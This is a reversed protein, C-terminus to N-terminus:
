KLLYSGLTENAIKIFGVEPVESDENTTENFYQLVQNHIAVLLNKNWKSRMGLFFNLYSLILMLGTRDNMQKVATEISMSAVSHISAMRDDNTLVLPRAPLKPVYKSTNCPLDQTKLNAILPAETVSKDQQTLVTQCNKSMMLKLANIVFMKAQPYPCTLLTDLIFRFATTEPVSYLVRSILEFTATRIEEDIQDLNKLLLMQLLCTSMYPPIKEFQFRINSDTSETLAVWIWFRAVSEATSNNYIESFLSATSCRLYVCISDWVSIEPYIHEGTGNFHIGSLIFVGYPDLPITTENALKQMQYTYSLQYIVQIVKSEEDDDSITQDQPLTKYIETSEQVYNLFEKNIDIGLNCSLRCYKTLLKNRKKESEKFTYELGKIKFAYEVDIYANKSNMCYALVYTLLSGLLKRQFLREDLDIKKVDEDEETSGTIDLLEYDKSFNYVNDLIIINDELEDSINKVLKMLSSIVMGLFKSPYLTDIRKLSIGIFKFLIVLKFNLSQEEKNSVFMSIEQEDAEGQEAYVEELSPEEIKLESLLECGSLLCEKANGSRAVEEFCQTLVVTIGNSISENDPGLNRSNQFNLLCKPLDWGIERVIDPNLKLEELLAKLFQKKDSLTGQQQVQECYIDIITALSVVDNQQEKFAKTLNDCIVAISEMNVTHM